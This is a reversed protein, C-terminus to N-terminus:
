AVEIEFTENHDNWPRVVNCFVLVRQFLTLAKEKTGHHLPMLLQHEAWFTLHTKFTFGKPPPVDLSESLKFTTHFKLTLPRSTQNQGNRMDWVKSAVDATVSHM